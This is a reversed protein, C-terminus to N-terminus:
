APICVVVPNEGHLTGIGKHRIDMKSPDITGADIFFAEVYHDESWRTEVANELYLSRLPMYPPIVLPIHGLGSQASRQTQVACWRTMRALRAIDHDPQRAPLASGRQPVCVVLMCHLSGSESRARVKADDRWLKHRLAIIGITSDHQTLVHWVWRQTKIGLAERDEAFAASYKQAEWLGFWIRKMPPVPPADAGMPWESRAMLSKGDPTDVVGGHIVRAMRDLVPARKRQKAGPLHTQVPAASCTSLLDELARKAAAQDNERALHAAAAASGAPRDAKPVKQWPEEDGFATRPMGKFVSCMRRKNPWDMKVEADLKRKNREPLQSRQQATAHLKQIEPWDLRHAAWLAM